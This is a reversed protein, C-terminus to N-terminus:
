GKMCLRATLSTAALQELPERVAAIRELIAADAMVSVDDEAFDIGAELM